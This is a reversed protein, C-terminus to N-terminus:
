STKAILWNVSFENSFKIYYFFIVTSMIKADTEQNIGAVDVSGVSFLYNLHM